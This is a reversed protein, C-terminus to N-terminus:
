PMKAMTVEFEVYVSNGEIPLDAIRYEKFQPEFGEASFKLSFTDPLGTAQVQPPNPKGKSEYGWSYSIKEDFQGRDNTQGVPLRYNLASRWQDLGTDVFEIKVAELPRGAESRVEGKFRFESVVDVVTVVCALLLCLSLASIIRTM